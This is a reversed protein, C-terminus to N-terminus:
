RNKCIYRRTFVYEYRSAYIKEKENINSNEFINKDLYNKELNLNEKIYNESYFNIILNKYILISFDLDIVNSIKLLKNNFNQYFDFFM